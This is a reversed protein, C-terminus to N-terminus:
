CRDVESTVKFQGVEAQLADAARRLNEAAMNFDKVTTSTQHVGSVLQAMAEDIQKAGLSQQRMGENVAHFRESAAHVQTIVEGMQGSIQSVQIICERVQESFKDMEMVGASVADQMQRVMQEIDLTAVATQDALRRIERAVVLFGRGAEGAKEAEIAANISLLNTQDAVKTITEVVTNIAGAKERIMGLKSSISGTAESLQEMITEMGGLATRGSDALASTEDAHTHVDEVTSLLEQGTASIQKVSAAIESTSANFDQMTNNQEGAAAAIQTATANLQVTAMQIRSILDNIRQIVANILVSLQGIEDQSDVEVRKTLDAAGEAMDSMRDIFGAMPRLIARGILWSAAMLVVLVILGFVIQTIMWYKMSNKAADEDAKIRNEALDVADEVAKRHKEFENRVHIRVEDSIDDATIKKGSELPAILEENVVRFFEVAPKYSDVMLANKLKDDVANDKLKDVWVQHQAKYENELTKFSKILETRRSTDKEQAIQVALLYPEIVFQPPPLIEAILDKDTVIERYLPGNVRVKLIMAGYMLHTVLLGFLFLGSLFIMRTRFSSNKLLM